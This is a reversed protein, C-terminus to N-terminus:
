NGISNLFQQLTETQGTFDLRFAEGEILGSRRLSSAHDWDFYDDTGARQDRKSDAGPRERRIALLMQPRSGLLLEVLYQAALRQRHVTGIQDKAPGENAYTAFGFSENARLKVRAQTAEARLHSIFDALEFFADTSRVPAPTAPLDADDGQLVKRWDALARNASALAASVATDTEPSLAPSQRVLSDRERTKQDLDTLAKAAEARSRELLWGEGMMLSLGFVALPVILHLSSLPKM